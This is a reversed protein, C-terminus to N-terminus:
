PKVLQLQWQQRVTPDIFHDIADYSLLSYPRSPMVLPAMHDDWVQRVTAANGTAIAAKLDQIVPEVHSRVHFGFLELLDPRNLMLDAVSRRGKDTTGCPAWSQRGLKTFPRYQIHRGGSETAPDILLPVENGPAAEEAILPMSGAALPFKSNKAGGRNCGPCSFLLNSWTWTLWWYGHTPFGAGRNAEAKPRYHEVDHYGLQCLHECYCCKHHQREWLMQKVVEYKGGIEKSTPRNLAAITRVRPLETARVARLEAPERGRQIRIM